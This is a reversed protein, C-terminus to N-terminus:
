YNSINRVCIFFLWAMRADETVSNWSMFVIIERVWRTRNVVHDIERNKKHLPAHCYFCKNRCAEIVKEKTKSTFPRCAMMRSRSDESPRPCSLPLTRLAPQVSNARSTVPPYTDDVYRSDLRSAGISTWKRPRSCLTLRCFWALEEPANQSATQRWVPKLNRNIIAM